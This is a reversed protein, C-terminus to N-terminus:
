TFRDWFRQQKLLSPRGPEILDSFDSRDALTYLANAGKTRKFELEEQYLPHMALIAVEHGDARVHRHFSAPHKVPAALLFGAFDALAHGAPIEWQITHGSGYWTGAQHAYRALSKMIGVPVFSDEDFDISDFTKTPMWDAPLSIMLETRKPMGEAVAAEPMTMELASMGMTVFTWSQRHKIPPFPLVDLHVTDSSLEHWVHLSEGLASSCHKEFAEMEDPSLSAFGDAGMDTM